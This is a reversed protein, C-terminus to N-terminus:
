ARNRPSQAPHDSAPRDDPALFVAVEALGLAQGVERVATHLVSDLDLSERMRATVSSVVEERHLRLQSEELLRANELTIAAQSATTELIAREDASWDHQPDEHELALVGIVQQRLLIPALLLAAEQGSRASRCAVPKGSLLEQREAESLWDQPRDGALASVNLGDYQFAPDPRSIAAEAWSQGAERQYRDGSERLAAQLRDVLRRNEIATALQDALAGLVQVTEAPFGGPREQHLDLVGVVREGAQLPLALEARTGALLPDPRYDEELRVDAIARPTGSAAVLAPIGELGVRLRIRRQRMIESMHGAVGAMQVYDGSDDLLYISGYYFGFRLVIMEIARTLVEELSRATSIDRAVEAGTQVLRTRAEAEATREAVRQELRGVLDRLQDRMGQFAGSLVGLEDRRGAPLDADWRGAGLQRSAEALKRIPQVVRDTWVLGL